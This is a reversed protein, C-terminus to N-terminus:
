CPPITWCPSVRTKGSGKAGLVLCSNGEGREVTGTLLNVLHRLSEDKEEEPAMPASTAHTECGALNSIVARLVKRAFPTLAHQNSEVALSAPGELNPNALASKQTEVPADADYTLQSLYDNDPEFVADTEALLDVQGRRGEGDYGSEDADDDEGTAEDEEDGMGSTGAVAVAKGSRLRRGENVDGEFNFNRAEKDRQWRENRLFADRSEASTLDFSTGARPQPEELDRLSEPATEDVHPLAPEPRPEDDLPNSSHRIPAPAKTRRKSPTSSEAPITKKPTVTKTIPKVKTSTRKSSRPPPTAAKPSAVASRYVSLPPVPGQYAPSSGLSNLRMQVEVMLDVTRNSTIASPGEVPVVAKDPHSNIKARKSPRAQQEGVMSEVPVDPSGRKRASSARPSPKVISPTGQSPANRPRMSRRGSTPQPAEEVQDKGTMQLPDPSHEPDTLLAAPTPRKRPPMTQILLQSRSYIDLCTSTIFTSDIDVRSLAGGRDRSSRATATTISMAMWEERGMEGIERLVQRVGLGARIRVVREAAYGRARMETDAMATNARRSRSKKSM